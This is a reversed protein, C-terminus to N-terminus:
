SAEGSSGGLRPTVDGVVGTGADCTADYDLGATRLRFRYVLRGDSSKTEVHGMSAGLLNVARLCAAFGDKESLEAPAAQGERAVWVAGIVFAAASLRGLPFNSSSSPM